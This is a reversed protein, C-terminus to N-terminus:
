TIHQDIIRYSKYFLPDQLEYSMTDFGGWGEPKDLVQKVREEEHDALKEKKFHNIKMFDIHTVNKSQFDYTEYKIASADGVDSFKAIGVTHNTISYLITNM